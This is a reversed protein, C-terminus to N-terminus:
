DAELKGVTLRYLNEDTVAVAATKAGKGVARALEEGDAPLVSLPVGYTKCKDRLRKDTNPSNDNATFVGCPKKKGRLAECVADTGIVAKGAKRCLGIAGLVGQAEHTAAM